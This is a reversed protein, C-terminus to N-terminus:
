GTSGPQIGIQLGVSMQRDYRLQFTSDGTYCPVLVGLWCVLLPNPCHICVTVVSAIRM